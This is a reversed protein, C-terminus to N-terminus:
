YIAPVFVVWSRATWGSEVLTSEQPCNRLSIELKGIAHPYSAAVPFIPLLTYVEGNADKPVGGAALIPCRIGTLRQAPSRWRRRKRRGIFTAAITNRFRSNRGNGIRWRKRFVVGTGHRLTIASSRSAMSWGRRVAKGGEHDRRRAEVKSGALLPPRWRKENLKYVDTTVEYAGYKRMYELPKLGEKAAAEPLGPVSNEFM